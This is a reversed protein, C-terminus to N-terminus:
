LELIPAARVDLSIKRFIHRTQLVIHDVARPCLIGLIGALSAPQSWLLVTSVKLAQDCATEIM